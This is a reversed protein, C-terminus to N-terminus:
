YLIEILIDAICGLICLIHIYIYIILSLGNDKLWSGKGRVRFGLGSSALFGIM